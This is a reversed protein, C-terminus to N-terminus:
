YSDRTHGDKKEKDTQRVTVKSRNGKKLMEEDYDLMAEKIAEKIIPQLRRVMRAAISDRSM